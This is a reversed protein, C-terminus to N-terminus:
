LYSLWWQTHTAKYKNYWKCLPYLALIVVIWILYVAWLDYGFQVPRFLFPTQGVIDKTGYGEIFFAIVTLLHILYIHLVYYFFPVRGFIKAFETFRNQVNELLALVILAPGLTICAYMLSPPYKQINMFAGLTALGSKQETWPFPNGYENLLRLVVFLVILGTGIIFLTKQRKISDVTPAFLKGACYGMFMIGTWPLFAYAIILVRNPAFTYTDFRGNHLLDWIFPVNQNRAAEPYDLLNHGLVILAGITFIVGYPLRVALGLLVMSIGIAWIVQFIIANYLPNFTWALTIVVAEIFILWLGRKMLFSSLDAKPKRLGILYASTGALFVFTPACFHTIWRTFYLIPTTTAPDLPDAQFAGNHFYDRVHDLAMIIMVIGRLIDISQVRKKVATLENM